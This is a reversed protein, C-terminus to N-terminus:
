QMVFNTIYIDMVEKGDPGKYAEVIKDRLEDKVKKLGAATSLDEVPHGGLYSIIIDNAKASKGNTYLKVDVGEVLQLAVGVRLFHGGALNVNIPEITSVEGAVLEEKKPANPDAAAGMNALGLFYGGGLLGITLIIAPGLFSKGGKKKKKGKDDSEETTDEDSM